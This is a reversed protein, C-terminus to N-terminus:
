GSLDKETGKMKIKLDTETNQELSCTCGESNQKDWIEGGLLQMIKTKDRTHWM